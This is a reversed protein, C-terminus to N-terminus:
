PAGPSTQPPLPHQESKAIEARPLADSARGHRFTQWRARIWAFYLRLKTATNPKSIRKAGYTAVALSLALGPPLDDSGKHRLYSAVSGRLAIHEGDSEPLWEGNASFVGDLVSYGARTYLEAAMDFRDGIPAVNATIAASQEATGVVSKPTEKAGPSNTGGKPRGPKKAWEGDRNRRAHHREPNWPTGNKDTDGPKPSNDGSPAPPPSSSAVPASAPPNEATATEDEKMAAITRESPTPMEVVSNLEAASVSEVKPSEPAAVEPKEPPSEKEPAPAPSSKTKAM